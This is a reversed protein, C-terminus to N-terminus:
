ACRFIDMATMNLKHKVEGEFGYLKNLSQAEHNGRTLHMCDPNLVKWAMLTVIVELSFSGRDVFDGNFLYPNESSPLGNLEFIRLLDYYQGHTDGCVTIKRGEPVDLDVLSPLQKVLSQFRLVIELIFRRHLAKQAKFADMMDTIFDNSMAYAQESEEQESAEAQPMRPGEYGDDVVIDELVITQSM